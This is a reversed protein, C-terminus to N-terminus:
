KANEYQKNWWPTRGKRQRIEKLELKKWKQTRMNNYGGEKLTSYM